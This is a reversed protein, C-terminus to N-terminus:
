KFTLQPWNASTSLELSQQMQATTMDQKFTATIKVGEIVLDKVIPALVQALTAIEAGNM